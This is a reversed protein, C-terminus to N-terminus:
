EAKSDQEAMQWRCITWLAAATETASGTNRSWGNGYREKCKMALQEFEVASPLGGGARKKWLAGGEPSLVALQMTM